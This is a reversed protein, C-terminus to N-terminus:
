LIKSSRGISDCLAKESRSGKSNENGEMLVIVCGPSDFIADHCRRMYWENSYGDPLMAPNWVNPLKGTAVYAENRIKAYAAAFRAKADTTGSIPGSLIYDFPPIMGGTQEGYNTSM